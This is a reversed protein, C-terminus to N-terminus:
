SSQKAWRARAAKRAARRRAVKDTKEWRATAAHSSAERREAVTLNKARAIGGLHGRRKAAPKGGVNGGIKGIASLYARVAAPLALKKARKAVALL